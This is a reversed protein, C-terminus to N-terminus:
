MRRTRVNFRRALGADRLSQNDDDLARGLVSLSVEAVNLEAALRQRLMAVTTDAFEGADM